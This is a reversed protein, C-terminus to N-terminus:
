RWTITSWRTGLAARFMASRDLADVADMLSAPLLEMGAQGYPDDNLPGGPDTANAMGDLGAFIQTAMFLYPNAVPEGSRNEFHTSSDGPGGILRVMAAKNDHSWVARKPALPNANLRKYGNITPNSFATGARVHRLLGGVYHLGTPSLLAEPRHLREGTELRALSQHLHWGSSFVNPLGPKTM